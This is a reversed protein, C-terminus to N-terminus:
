LRHLEISFPSSGKPADSPTPPMGPLTTSVQTLAEAAEPNLSFTAFFFLGRQLFQSSKDAHNDEASYEYEGPGLRFTGLRTEGEPLTWLQISYLRLDASFRPNLAIFSVGKDELGRITNQGQAAISNPHGDLATM